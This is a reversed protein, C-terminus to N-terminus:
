LTWESINNRSISTKGNQLCLQTDVIVKMYTCKKQPPPHPFSPSMLSTIVSKKLSFVCVTSQVRENSMHRQQKKKPPPHVFFDVPWTCSLVVVVPLITDHMIM